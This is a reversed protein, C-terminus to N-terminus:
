RNLSRGAIGKVRQNHALIISFSLSDYERILEYSEDTGISKM